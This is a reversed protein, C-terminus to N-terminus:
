YITIDCTFIASWAIGIHPNYFDILIPINDPGIAIPSRIIIFRMMNNLCNITAINNSTKGAGVIAIDIPNM